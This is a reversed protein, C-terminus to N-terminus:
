KKKEGTDITPIEALKVQKQWVIYFGLSLIGLFTVIAVILKWTMQLPIPKVQSLLTM